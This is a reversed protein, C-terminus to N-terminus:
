KIRVLASSRAFHDAATLSGAETNWAANLFNNVFTRTIGPLLIVVNGPVAKIGDITMHGNNM